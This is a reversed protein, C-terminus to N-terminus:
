RVITSIAGAIIPAISVVDLKPFHKDKPIDISDTVIVKDLEANTLNKVADGALVGHTTMVIVSTAGADKLAKAGQVTTGGTAIIDDVIIATKGKVDGIIQFVASTDNKDLERKKEMVVMPLNLLYTLNRARKVGGVDPSIIVPDKLHMKKIEQALVPLASIHTVPVQFFGVIADNHLDVCIMESFMSIELFKAIV